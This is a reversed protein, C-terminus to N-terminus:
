HCARRALGCGAAAADGLGLTVWRFTRLGCFDLGTHSWAARQCPPIEQPMSLVRGVCRRSGLKQVRWVGVQDPAQKQKQQKNANKAQLLVYAVDQM